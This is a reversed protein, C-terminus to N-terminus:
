RILSLLYQPFQNVIGLTSSMLQQRSQLLSLQNSLEAVDADEISSISSKLSLQTTSVNEATKKLGSIQSGIIAQNTGVTASATDLATMAAAAKTADTLDITAADINLTAGDSKATAITRTDGSNIGTQIDVSAAAAGILNQGFLKASNATNDLQKQLEAFSSQLATRQDASLLSSSAQTALDKMQTIISQQSDLAGDAVSLLSQGASINKTVANYSSQQMKLSSLIAMGAPDDSASLIRKGSSIQASVKQLQTANDNLNRAISSALTNSNLSLM